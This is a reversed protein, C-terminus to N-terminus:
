RFTMKSNQFGTNNQETCNFQQNTFSAALETWSFLNDKCTNSPTSSYKLHVFVSRTYRCSGLKDGELPLNQDLSCSPEQPSDYLLM